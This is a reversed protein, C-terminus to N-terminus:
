LLIVYYNQYDAFKFQKSVILEFNNSFCLILFRIFLSIQNLIKQGFHNWKCKRVSHNIIKKYMYVLSYSQAKEIKKKWNKKKRRSHMYDM